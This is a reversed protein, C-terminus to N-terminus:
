STWAPFVSQLRSRPALAVDGEDLVALDVRSKDVRRRVTPSSGFILATFIFIVTECVDSLSARLGCLCGVVSRAMKLRQLFSVSELIWEFNFCTQM